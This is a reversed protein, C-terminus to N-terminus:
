PAHDVEEIFKYTLPTVLGTQATQIRRMLLMKGQDGWYFMICYTMLMSYHPEKNVICLVMVLIFSRIMVPMARQKLVAAIWHLTYSAGWIGFAALLFASTSTL